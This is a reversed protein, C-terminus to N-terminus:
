SSRAILGEPLGARRRLRGEVRSMQGTDVEHDYGLLHLLGHLALIRLEIRMPHGLSRAQRSAVGRAIIIEGLDTTLTLHKPSLAKRHGDRRRGGQRSRERGESKPRQEAPFSLVDTAKNVRRFRRNLAKMTVDPVLAVTVAGRAGRPAARALWGGLGKAATGGTRVSLVTV